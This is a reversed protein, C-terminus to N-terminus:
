APPVAERRPRRASPRARAALIALALLAVCWAFTLVLTAGESGFLPFVGSPTVGVLSWARDALPPVGYADYRLWPAVAYITSQAATWVLLPAALLAAPRWSFAIAYLPVFLPVLPAFYRAQPSFGGTWDVFPVTLLYPLALLAIPRQTGRRAAIGAGTFLLAAIPAAPLLGFARDVFLGAIGHAGGYTEIPARRDAFFLLFGAHPLPLGYVVLDIAAYAAVVVVTPAVLRGVGRWGPRWVAVAAFLLAAVIPWYRVHLLPLSATAIALTWRPAAGALAAAAVAIPLPAIADAFVQGSYTLAPAALGSTAAAVLTPGAGTGLSRAIRVGIAIAAAMGLAIAVVVLARGGIAFPLAIAIATGLDHIPYAGSRARSSATTRIFEDGPLPEGPSYTSDDVARWRATLEFGEGRILSEAAMFYTPEDGTASIRRTTWIGVTVYVIALLVFVTRAGVSLIGASM